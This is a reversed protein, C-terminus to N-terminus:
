YKIITLYGHFTQDKKEIKLKSTNGKQILEANGSLFYLDIPNNEIVDKVFKLGNDRDEPARASIYKTFAVELAECDTNLDPQVKRLTNLIGQGRDALVIQQKGFDYGFFIGRVDPWNGINHNFSNNGIEGLIAIILPSIDALKQDKTLKVSLHQLRASFIDSTECYYDKSLQTPSDSFAWSEALDIIKENSSTNDENLFQNIDSPRYYRKSTKSPRFSLLIGKEEWKRLTDISVGILKAAEGISLLKKM